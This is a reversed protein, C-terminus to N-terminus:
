PPTLWLSADGPFKSWDAGEDTRFVPPCDRQVEQQVGPIRGQDEASLPGEFQRVAELFSLRQGLWALKFLDLEGVRVKDFRALYHDAVFQLWAEGSLYERLAQRTVRDRGAALEVRMNSLTNIPGGGDLTTGLYLMALGEVHRALPDGVESSSRLAECRARITSWDLMGDQFGVLALVPSRCDFSGRFVYARPFVRCFTDRIMSVHAPTLQYAALWQCFM